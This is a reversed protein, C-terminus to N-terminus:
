AGGLKKQVKCGPRDCFGVVIEQKVAPTDDTVVPFNAGTIKELYTALEDAATKESLSHDKRYVIVYNTKKDDALYLM